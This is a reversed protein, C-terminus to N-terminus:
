ITASGLLRIKANEAGDHCRKEDVRHGAQHEGRDDDALIIARLLWRSSRHDLLSGIDVVLCVVGIV